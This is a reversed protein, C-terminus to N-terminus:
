EPGESVFCLVTSDAGLGLAERAAPDSMAAQLGAVGAGGSPTTPLGARGLREATAGAQRDGVLIFADADRALAALAVMSPEKCDLRGQTPVPGSVQIVRGARLSEVLCPAAYPEVVTIKPAAGWAQRLGRAVSAAMGGVGAQLFVHSPCIGQDDLAGAAETPMVGYGQMITRPVEVYDPWSSDSILVWGKERCDREAGAMAEEYVAGVRAVDAGCGRLREAFDEPVSQALYIVSRAGLWRAGTAVSIGHNGASACAFILDGAHAKMEETALEAFDVPRGLRQEQAAKVHVAVAYAGGLAKFSGLDLRGTEDKLWLGAVGMEAALDPESRLPSSADSAFIRLFALTGAPDISGLWDESLEALGEGRHANLLFESM